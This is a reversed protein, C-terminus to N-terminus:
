PQSRRQLSAGSPRPSQWGAGNVGPALLGAQVDVVLGLRGGHDLRDAGVRLEGAALALRHELDVAREGRGGRAPACPTM